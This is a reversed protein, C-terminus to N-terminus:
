RALTILIRLTHKAKVKGVLCKVIINCFHSMTPVQHTTYFLEHQWSDSLIIEPWSLWRFFCFSRNLCLPCRTATGSAMNRRFHPQDSLFWLNWCSTIESALIGSQRSFWSSCANIIISVISSLLSFYQKHIKHGNLSHNHYKDLFSGLMKRHRQFSSPRIHLM